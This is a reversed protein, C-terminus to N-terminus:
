LFQQYIIVILVLTRVAGWFTVDPARGSRCFIDITNISSAYNRILVENDKPQPREIEKLELVESPGYKTCLIAKM